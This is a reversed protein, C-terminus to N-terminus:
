LQSKLYLSYPLLSTFIQLYAKWMPLLFFCASPFPIVPDSRSKLIASAATHFYSIVAYYRLLRHHCSPSSCHCHLHASTLLRFHIGFLVSYCEFQLYFLLDSSLLSSSYRWIKPKLLQTPISTGNVTM